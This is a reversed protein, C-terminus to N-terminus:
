YNGWPVRGPAWSIHVPYISRTRIRLPRSIWAAERQDRSSINWIFRLDSTLTALLVKQIYVFVMILIRIIQTSFSIGWCKNELRLAELALSTLPSNKWRPLYHLNPALHFVHRLSNGAEVLQYLSSECIFYWDLICFSLSRLRSYILFIVFSTHSVLPTKILTGVHM